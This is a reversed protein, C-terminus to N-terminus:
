DGEAGAGERLSGIYANVRQRFHLFRFLGVGVDKSPPTPHKRKGTDQKAIITHCCLINYDVQSSFDLTKLENKIYDRYHM